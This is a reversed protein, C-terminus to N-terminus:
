DYAADWRFEGDKFTLDTLLPVIAFFDRIFRRYFNAFSLFGRLGKVIM